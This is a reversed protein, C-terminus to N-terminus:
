NATLWQSLASSTQFNRKPGKPFFQESSKQSASLVWIGTGRWPCVETVYSGTGLGQRRFIEGSGLFLQPQCGYASKLAWWSGLGLCQATVEVVRQLHWSLVCQQLPVSFSTMLLIMYTRFAQPYLWHWGTFAMHTVKVSLAVSFLEPSLFNDVTSLRLSPSRHAKVSVFVTCFCTLQSRHSHSLQCLHRPDGASCLCPTTTCAQSGLVWSVFDISDSTWPCGGLKLSAKAVVYSGSEFFFRCLIPTM